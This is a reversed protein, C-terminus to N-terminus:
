IIWEEHKFMKGYRERLEGVLFERDLDLYICEDVIHKVFGDTGAALFVVAGSETLERLVKVLGSLCMDYYFSSTKYPSFFIKRGNAYGLAACARWREGSLQFLRRDLRQETLLFRQQIDEFKEDSKKRSLAKEISKKVIASRYSEESPELNWSIAELDKRHVENKDIYIRLRGFDVKGGLLHSLYMCGQGYESVLAYIKGSEFELDRYRWTDYFKRKGLCAGNEILSTCKSSDIKLKSFSNDM